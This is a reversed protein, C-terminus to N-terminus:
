TVDARQGNRDSGTIAQGAGRVGKGQRYRGVGRGWRRVILCGLQLGEGTGIRQRGKGQRAAATIHSGIQGVVAVLQGEVAADAVTVRANLQVAGTTGDPCDGKVPRHGNGGGKGVVAM